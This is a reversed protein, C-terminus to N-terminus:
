SRGNEAYNELLHDHLADLAARARGAQGADRAIRALAAPTLGLTELYGRAANTWRRMDERLRSLMEANQTAYPALPDGAAEDVRDIALAARRVRVLVVSCVEITPEFAPRYTQAEIMLDRLGGAVEAADGQLQLVSVKAGHRMALQNGAEFGACRVCRCGEDHKSSGHSEDVIGDRRLQGRGSAILSAKRAFDDSM